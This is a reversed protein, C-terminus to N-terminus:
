SSPMNNECTVSVIMDDIYADCGELESIVANIMRQFTAPTNKMGFPMVLYQYLGDFTVFASIERARRTLPM